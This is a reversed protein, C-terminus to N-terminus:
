PCDMAFDDVDLEVNEAYFGVGGAPAVKTPLPLAVLWVDSQTHLECWLQDGESVRAEFRGV